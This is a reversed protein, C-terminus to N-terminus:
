VGERTIAWAEAKAEELGMSDDHTWIMHALYAVAADREAEAKDARAAQARVLGMASEFITRQLARVERLAALPDTLRDQANEM